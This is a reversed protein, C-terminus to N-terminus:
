QVIGAHPYGDARSGGNIYIEENQYEKQDEFSNQQLSVNKGAFSHLM